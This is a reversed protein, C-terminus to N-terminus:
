IHILSLIVVVACGGDVKEEIVEFSWGEAALDIFRQVKRKFHQTAQDPLGEFKAVRAWTADFDGAKASAKFAVLAETPTGGSVTAPLLLTICLILTKM